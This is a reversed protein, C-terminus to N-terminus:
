RYTIGLWPPNLNRWSEVRIEVIIVYRAARMQLKYEARADMNQNTEILNLQEALIFCHLPGCQGTSTVKCGIPSLCYPLQFYDILGSGAWARGRALRRAIFFPYMGSVWCFLDFCGFDDDRQFANCYLKAGESNM